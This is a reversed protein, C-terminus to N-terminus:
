NGDVEVDVEPKGITYQRLGEEVKTYGRLARALGEVGWLDPRNTDKVEISAVGESENFFKVESKVFSLVEDLKEMNGNFRKGLLREFEAIDVDITPM